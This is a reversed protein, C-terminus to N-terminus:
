NTSRPGTDATGSNDSKVTQKNAFTSDSTTTVKTAHRQEDDQLIAQVVYWRQTHTTDITHRIFFMKDRSKRILKYLNHAKAKHDRQQTTQQINHSTDRYRAPRKTTRTSTRQTENATSNTRKRPSVAEVRRRKKPEQQETTEQQNVESTRNTCDQIEPTTQDTRNHKNITDTMRTTQTTTTTPNPEQSGRQHTHTTPDKTMTTRQAKNQNHDSDDDNSNDSDDSTSSNNDSEHPAQANPFNDIDEQWMDDIKNYAFPQDPAVQQYRGPEHLGLINELPNDVIAHRYTALRTDIGTTPKHIVLTSPIKTLRAASEKTIRGRRGAGQTGPLKQVRYTGPKVQEIIRYPGRAHMRAKEPGHEKTTQVQKKIIVLDGPAFTKMNRGENKLNRHHERREEILIKLVEQQQRWLPFASDIHELTQQGQADHDRPIIPEHEFDIPFPFERGIAAYSRVINTGDVPASNWAYVAFITVFMFDQFTECDAAHKRQIKNLYRHFRECLIAKHNGKSVTYYPLGINQCLTKVAGAFESGSDIIVLRPLGHTIFFATFVARTMTESDLANVFTAAAFGTMTDICTVAHSGNGKKVTAARGPHWVDLTIVDFPEDAQFTALQQQAEHSAVNAANCHGCGLTLQRVEAAM